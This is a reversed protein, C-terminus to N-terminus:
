KRPMTYRINKGEGVRIILEKQLMERLIQRARAEKIQLLNGVERSVIYPNSKLWDIIISESESLKGITDGKISLEKEYSLNDRESVTGFDNRYSESLKKANVTNKRYLIVEVSDGMEKIIPEQLGQELCTTKIRKIGTGWQEIYNLSKFIRALVKNRIESRGNVIDLETLTSPFGGPSVIRVQHDYISVKIDRGQNSYDRHVIANLLAERIAPMPIEYTDKRQLGNIESSLHIHNQIFAETEKLQVFLNGTFEKKDIFIDTTKGKFRSCKMCVHEFVGLLILLGNSPYQRGHDIRLLKLNLMMEMSLEKNMRVFENELPSLDLSKVSHDYYIDEDFCINRRQREIELINEFAAKRNTAGVRIYTGENKGKKRVYYPKLNGPFVEVVLLLKGEINTAYIEPIINPYCVDYIISAIKDQIDFLRDEDIGVPISQDNVGIILKGGAGNAFAIVTKAIAINQPMQEKFELTKSEGQHIEELLRM